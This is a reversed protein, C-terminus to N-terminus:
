IRACQDLSGREGGEHHVKSAVTQKSEMEREEGGDGMKVPSKASPAGM